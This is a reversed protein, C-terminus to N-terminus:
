MSGCSVTAFNSVNECAIAKTASSVRKYLKDKVNYIRHAFPGIVPAGVPTDLWRGAAVRFRDVVKLCQRNRNVSCDRRNQIDRTPQDLSSRSPSRTTPHGSRLTRSAPDLRSSPDARAPGAREPNSPSPCRGPHADRDRWPSARHQVLPLVNPLLRHRRHHRPLPWPLRPPVEPDQVAGRLVPQRRVGPPPETLAHSRSRRATTRHVQEDDARRPRLATHAGPAPRGTQPLVRRHSSRGAGLEGPRRGDLRGRLPQLHRARRTSISTRGSRRGWCSPSIGPGPRTRRRLWWSPNPTSPISVSIAGSGSRGIRPWSGICRASRACTTAKTSCRRWSRRRRVTSSAHAPSCM